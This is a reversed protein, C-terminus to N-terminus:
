HVYLRHYADTFHIPTFPNYVYGCMLKDPHVLLPVTYTEDGRQIYAHMTTGAIITHNYRCHHYPQVQLSPITTGATITYNYRCHYYLQVQLSLITTGATITHNCHYYPQVQLSLITTGATITHNYRCHYQRRMLGRMERYIHTCPQVQLSVAAEHAGEDRQIYAHM